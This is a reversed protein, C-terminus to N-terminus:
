GEIQKTAPAPAKHTAKAIETDRQAAISAMRERHQMDRSDNAEQAKVEVDRRRAQSAARIGYLVCLMAAVVAALLVDNLTIM